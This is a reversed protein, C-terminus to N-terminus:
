RFTSMTTEDFESQYSIPKEFMRSNWSVFFLLYKEPGYKNQYSLSLGLGLIFSIELYKSPFIQQLKDRSRGRCEWEKKCSSIGINITFFLTCNLCTVTVCRVSREISSAVIQVIFSKACWVCSHLAKQTLLTQRSTHIFVSQSIQKHKHWNLLRIWQIKRIRTSQIKNSRHICWPYLKQIYWVCCKSKM